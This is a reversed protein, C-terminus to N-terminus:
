RRAPAAAWARGSPRCAGGPRPRGSSRSGAPARPRTAAARGSCSPAPASRARTCGCTPASSRSRAAGAIPGGAIPGGAVAGGPRADPSAAPGVADHVGSVRRGALRTRGARPRPPPARVVDLEVRGGGVARAPGGSRRELTAVVFVPNGTPDAAPVVRRLLVAGTAYDIEYDVFRELPERAVLRTANDRARVELAVRDTGPRVGAGFRYPGSTGDGRLQRRDLGQTTVSGFGSWAVPGTAVRAPPAPSRGSTPPSDAAAPRTAPPSTASCSGTSAASSARPSGGPAAPSSGGSARM